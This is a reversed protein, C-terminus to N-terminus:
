DILIPHPSHLSNNFCKSGLQPFTFLLEASFLVVKLVTKEKKEQDLHRKILMKHKRESELDPGFFFIPLPYKLKASTHGETSGHNM